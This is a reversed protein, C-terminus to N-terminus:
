LLPLPVHLLQLADQLVALWWRVGGSCMWEHGEDEEDV